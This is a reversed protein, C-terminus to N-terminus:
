EARVFDEIGGHSQQLFRELFHVLSLSVLLEASLVHGEIPPEKSLRTLYMKCSHEGPGPRAFKKQHRGGIAPRKRPMGFYDVHKTREALWGCPV